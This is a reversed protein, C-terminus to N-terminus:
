QRTGPFATVFEPPAGDSKVIWVTKIFATRGDPAEIIGRVVYKQGFEIREGMEAECSSALKLLQDRLAQWGSHVFGLSHFFTAKSRGVPHEFSLLYDRVKADSVVAEVGKPLKM